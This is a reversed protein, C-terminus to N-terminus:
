NGAQDTKVIWANKNGNKISYGAAIFGNDATAKVEYLVNETGPYFSKVWSIAGQDVINILYANLQLADGAVAIYSSGTFIIDHFIAYNAFDAFWSTVGMSHQKMIFSEGPKYGCMILGGTSHVKVKNIIGGEYSTMISYSHFFGNAEVKMVMPFTRPESQIIKANGCIYYNNQSDQVMDVFEFYHPSYNLWIENGQADTKLMVIKDLKNSGVALFGGDNSQLVCTFHVNYELYWTKTWLNVGLSDFRSLQAVVKNIVTDKKYSAVILGNDSTLKSFSSDPLAVKKASITNGKLDTRFLLLEQGTAGLNGTSGNFVFGGNANLKVSYIMDEMAGGAIRQYSTDNGGVQLINDFSDGSHPPKEPDDKACSAIFVCVFTTLLLKQFTKM